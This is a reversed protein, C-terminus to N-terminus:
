DIVSRTHRNKKGGTYPLQPLLTEFEQRTEKRIAAGFAVGYSATL